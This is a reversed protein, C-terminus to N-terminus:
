VMDFLEFHVKGRPVRLTHLGRQVADCMPKPGCMFYEYKDADGPLVKRLLELNILGTEGQWNDPPEKLIHLLRLDLREQLTNLEERFIINQWRKNCCIFYIPRSDKRAALTRLMSMIPAIGIGGAIFVFGPAQRHFDVSFIGYPGDLYAVEGIETNKITRTFDGLEKITFELKGSDDASSSFSFPHERVHWPSQRLTLWAFQGPKFRMGEHGDPVLALTWTNGHEPRVETVRYPKRFLMWPKIMRLYVILSLWFLIYGSWFWRKVPANIYYGVGDIHWLALLFAMVTLGIHVMRWEDYHIRLQKRWLSTIILLAFLLLSLRGATMYWSAQSPNLSGLAEVNDIRIIIFHLLIFVFAIIALYRHFYYIIDVGFPASARSFRATLFFQIGLMAMGAFGLVMSFDWWFGSGDPMEGVTLLVLPTLVLTLYISLWLSASLVTKM